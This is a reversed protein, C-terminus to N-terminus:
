PPDVGGASFPHCRMIRWVGKSVGLLLGYKNIAEIMYQSCTPQFRCNRGLLPSLGRQYFRVLGIAMMSPIRWIRNM